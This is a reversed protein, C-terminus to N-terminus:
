FSEAETPTPRGAAAPAEDKIAICRWLETLVEACVLLDRGDLQDTHKWQGQQDKYSKSLKVSYTTFPRGDKGTLQNEWAAAEYVGSRVKYRPANGAM